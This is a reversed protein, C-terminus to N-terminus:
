FEVSLAPNLMSKCKTSLTLGLLLEFHHGLLAGVEEFDTPYGDDLLNDIESLKM